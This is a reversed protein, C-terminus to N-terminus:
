ESTTSRRVVSDRLHRIMSIEEVGAAKGAILYGFFAMAMVIALEGARAMPSLTVGVWTIYQTLAFLPAMVAFAAGLLRLHQGLFDTVKIRGTHKKLLSLTIFLGILYSVSFAAGLGITVWQNKM